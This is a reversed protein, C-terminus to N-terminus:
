GISFGIFQINGWKPKGIMAWEIFPLEVSTVCRKGFNGSTIAIDGFKCLEPQLFTLRFVSHARDGREKREKGAISSVPQM